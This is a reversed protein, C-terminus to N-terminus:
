VRSERSERKSSQVSQWLNGATNWPAKRIDIVIMACAGACIAIAVIVYPLPLEFQLNSMLFALVTSAASGADMSM